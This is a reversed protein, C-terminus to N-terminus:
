TVRFTIPLNNLPDPLAPNIEVIVTDRLVPDREL